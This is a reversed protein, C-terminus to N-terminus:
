EAGGQAQNNFADGAQDQETIERVVIRGMLPFSEFKLNAGKVDKHMWAAGIRTWRAKDGEGNVQWIAHTPRNSNSSNKSM